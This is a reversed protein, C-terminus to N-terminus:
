PPPVPRLHEHYFPLRGGAAKGRRRWPVAHQHSSRPAAGCGPRRGPGAIAAVSFFRRRPQHTPAPPAPFRGGVYLCLPLRDDQWFGRAQQLLLLPLHRTHKPPPSPSHDFASLTTIIIHQVLVLSWKSHGSRRACSARALTTTSAGEAQHDRAQPGGQRM